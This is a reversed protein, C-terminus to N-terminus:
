DAPHITGGEDAGAAGSEPVPSPAPLDALWGRARVISDRMRDAALQSRTDPLARLRLIQDEDDAIDAEIRRSLDYAATKNKLALYEAAARLLQTLLALV